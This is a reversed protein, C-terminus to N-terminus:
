DAAHWDRTSSQVSFFERAWSAQARFEYSSRENARESAAECRQQAAARETDSTPTAITLARSAVQLSKGPMRNSRNSCACARPGAAGVAECSSGVLTQPQHSGVRTLNIHRRNLHQSCGPGWAAGSWALLFNACPMSYPTVRQGQGSAGPCPADAM